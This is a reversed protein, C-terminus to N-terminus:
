GEEFYLLCKLTWGLMILQGCSIRNREPEYYIVLDILFCIICVCCRQCVSFKGEAPAPIFKVCYFPPLAPEPNM